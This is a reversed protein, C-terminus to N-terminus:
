RKLYAFNHRLESPFNSHSDADNKGGWELERKKGVRFHKRMKGDCGRGVSQRVVVTMMPWDELYVVHSLSSPFLPFFREGM